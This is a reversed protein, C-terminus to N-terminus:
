KVATAILHRTGRAQQRLSRPFSQVGNVVNAAMSTLTRIPRRLSWSHLGLTRAKGERVAYCVDVATFRKALLDKLQARMYHRKHDPNTNLVWDGNPTTVLIRGNRKLVRHVESVFLEDKEVHEIVEVAVVIDFAESPLTSRTMDDLLIDRVNTRRALTQTMMSETVGLNLHEQLETERPLDTITVLAPVGITYHSKRGGVDLIEPRAVTATSVLRLLEHRVLRYLPISVPELSLYMLEFPKM